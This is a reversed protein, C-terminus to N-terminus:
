DLRERYFFNCRLLRKRNRYGCTEILKLRRLKVLIHALHDLSVATHKALYSNSAVCELKGHTLDHIILLLVFETSSIIKHILLQGLLWHIKASSYKTM